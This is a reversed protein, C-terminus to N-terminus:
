DSFGRKGDGDADKVPNFKDMLSPKGAEQRGVGGSGMEMGAGTGTGVTSSDHVGRNGSTDVTSSDYVGRNGSTGIVGTGPGSGPGSGPERPPHVKGEGPTLGFLESHSGPAATGKMHTSYETGTATPGSGSDSSAPHPDKPGDTRRSQAGPTGDTSTSVTDRAIMDSPGGSSAMAPAAQQKPDSSSTPPKDNLAPSAISDM